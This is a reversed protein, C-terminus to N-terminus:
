HEGAAQAVPARRPMLKKDFLLFGDVVVVMGLVGAVVAAIWFSRRKASAAVTSLVVGVQLLIFAIQFREGQEQHLVKERETSEAQLKIETLEAEYKKVKALTQEELGKVAAELDPRGLAMAKVVDLQGQQLSRKISKAQYYSWQNTVEAQALITRSFQGAYQGSSLAALVALVATTRAAHDMWDRRAKAITGASEFPASPQGSSSGTPSPAPPPTSM